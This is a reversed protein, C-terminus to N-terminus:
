QLQPINKGETDSVKAAIAVALPESTRNQRRPAARIQQTQAFNSPDLPIELNHHVPIVTVIRITRSDTDLAKSPHHTSTKHKASLGNSLTAM